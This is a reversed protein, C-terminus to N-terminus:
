NPLEDCPVARLWLLSGGRHMLTLGQKPYVWAEGQATNLRLRPSGFSILVRGMNTPQSPVVTVAAVEEGALQKLLHQSLPQDRSDEGDGTARELSDQEADSLALRAVVSWTNEPTILSARYELQRGHRDHTLWLQGAHWAHLRGLSLRDEALPELVERQWDDLWAPPPLPEAKRALWLGFALLLAALAVLVFGQRSRVLLM